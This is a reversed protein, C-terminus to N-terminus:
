PPCKGLAGPEPRLIREAVRTPLRHEGLWARSEPDARPVRGRPRGRLAGDVARPTLQEAERFAM